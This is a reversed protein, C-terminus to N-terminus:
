GNQWADGPGVSAVSVSTTAESVGCASCMPCLSRREQACNAPLQSPHLGTRDQLKSVHSICCNQALSLRGRQWGWVSTGAPQATEKQANGGAQAGHGFAMLSETGPGSRGFGLGGIGGGGFSALALQPRCFKFCMRRAQNLFAQVAPM